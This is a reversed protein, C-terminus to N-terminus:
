CRCASRSARTKMPFSPRVKAPAAAAADEKLWEVTVGAGSLWREIAEPPTPDTASAGTDANVAVVGLSAGDSGRVRYAGAHRVPTTPRGSADVRLAAGDGSLALLEAAGRPLQVGRGAIFSRPIISRSVGQRVLEQVLPVMLPKTPLDTWALDPSALWVCVLGGGGRAAARGNEGSEQEGAEALVILPSGDSLRLVVDFPAAGPRLVGEEIRLARSVTVPRVLDALEPVLALPDATGSGTRDASLTAAPAFAQAERSVTWGLGLASAMGDFWTHTVENSPPTVLLMAGDRLSERVRQWGQADLLDPRTVAIVDFGRLLAGGGM